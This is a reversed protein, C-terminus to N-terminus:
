ALRSDNEESLAIKRVTGVLVWVDMLTSRRRIYLEDYRLKRRVSRISCDYGGRVQALGTLGPSVRLRRRFGPVATELQDAITPREPRPGVLSMEGRLVNVLQPLEDLHTARLFRGVRTVRPDRASAWVPGTEREADAVMSRFKIIRFRRGGRGLREQTYFVPGRREALVALAIAGFLPALLLVAPLALCVDLARKGAGSSERIASRHGALWSEEFAHVQEMGVRRRIMSVPADM